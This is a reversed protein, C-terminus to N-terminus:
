QVEMNIEKIEDFSWDWELLNDKVYECAMGNAEEESEANIITECTGIIKVKYRKM